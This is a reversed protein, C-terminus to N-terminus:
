TEIGGFAGESAQWERTENAHKGRKDGGFGLLKALEGTENLYEIEDYNGVFENNLFLQPYKGRLGSIGFLENRREKFEPLGGDVLEYQGETAVAGLQPAAWGYALLWNMVRTQEAHTVGGYTSIMLTVASTHKPAAAAAAAAAEEEEKRRRAAAMAAQDVSSRRKPPEEKKKKKKKKKKM